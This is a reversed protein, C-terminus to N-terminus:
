QFAMTNRKPWGESIQRAEDARYLKNYGSISEPLPMSMGAKARFRMERGALDTTISKKSNMAAFVHRDTTNHTIEHNMVANVRLNDPHRLKIGIKNQYIHSAGQDEAENIFKTQFNEKMKQLSKQSAQPLREAELPFDDFSKMSLELQNILSRENTLAESSVKIFTTAATSEPAVDKV